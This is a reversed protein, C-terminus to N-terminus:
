RYACEADRPTDEFGIPCFYHNLCHYVYAMDTGSLGRKMHSLADQSTMGVTRYTGCPKYLYFGRGRVKYHRNLARFWRFFSSRIKAVLYNINTFKIKSYNNGLIFNTIKGCDTFLM